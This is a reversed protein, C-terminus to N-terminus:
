EQSYDEDVEADDNKILEVVKGARSRAKQLRKEGEDGKVLILDLNDTNSIGM